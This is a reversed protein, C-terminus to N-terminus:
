KEEKSRMKTIILSANLIISFINCIVIFAIAKAIEQKASLMDPWMINLPLLGIAIGICFILGVGIIVPEQDKSFFDGYREENTLMAYTNYATYPCIIGAFFPIVIYNLLIESPKRNM